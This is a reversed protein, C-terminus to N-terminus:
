LVCTQEDCHSQSKVARVYARCTRSADPLVHKCEAKWPVQDAALDEYEKERERVQVGRTDHCYIITTM